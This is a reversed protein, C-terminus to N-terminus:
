TTIWWLQGMGGVYLSSLSLRMLWLGCFSSVATGTTTHRHQMSEEAVASYGDLSVYSDSVGRAERAAAHGQVWAGQPTGQSRWPGLLTPLPRCSCANTCRTSCAPWLVPCPPPPSNSTVMLLTCFPKGIPHQPTLIGYGPRTQDPITQHPRIHHQIAYYPM